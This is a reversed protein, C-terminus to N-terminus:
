GFLVVHVAGPGQVGITLSREIDATRSPGTVLSAYRPARSGAPALIPRLAFLDPLLDDYAVVEILTRALMSVARDAMSEELLLVSGTEAVAARGRVIGVSVDAVQQVAEEETPVFGHEGLRALFADPPSMSPAVAIRGVGRLGLALEAVDSWDHTRSVRADTREAERAFRDILADM